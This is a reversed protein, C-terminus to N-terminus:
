DKTCHEVSRGVFCRLIRKVSNVTMHGKSKICCSPFSPCRSLGSNKSQLLLLFYCTTPCSAISVDLARVYNAWGYHWFRDVSDSSHKSQLLTGVFRSSLTPSWRYWEHPLATPLAHLCWLGDRGRSPLWSLKPVSPCLQRFRNQLIMSSLLRHPSSWLYM